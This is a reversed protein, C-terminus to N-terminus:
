HKKPTNKSKDVVTMTKRLMRLANDSVTDDAIHQDLTKAGAALLEEASVFVNHYKKLTDPVYPKPLRLIAAQGGPNLGLQTAQVLAGSADEAEVLTGGLPYEDTAFSLYFFPM